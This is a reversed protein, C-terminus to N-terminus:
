SKFSPILKFFFFKLCFEMAREGIGIAMVSSEMGVINSLLNGMMLM